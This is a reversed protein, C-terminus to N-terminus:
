RAIDMESCIRMADQLAAHVNRSSVGIRVLIFKGDPKTTPFTPKGEVMSPLDVQGGNASVEILDFYVQANEETGIEYFVREAEHDQMEGSLVNRLKTSIVGDERRLSVLELDPKITVGRKYLARMAVAYNTPGLNQLPTRDPTVLVVAASTAAAVEAAVAARLGAGAAAHLDGSKGVGM